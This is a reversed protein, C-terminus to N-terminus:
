HDNGNAFRGRLDQDAPVRRLVDKSTKSKVHHDRPAYQRARQEPTVPTLIWGNRRNFSDPKSVHRGIAPKIESLYSMSRSKINVLKPKVLTFTEVRVAPSNPLSRSEFGRTPTPSENSTGHLTPTVRASDRSEERRPTHVQSFSNRGSLNLLAESRKPMNSLDLMNDVVIASLLGQEQERSRDTWLIWHLKVTLRNARQSEIIM